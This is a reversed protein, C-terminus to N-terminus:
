AFAHRKKLSLANTYILSLSHSLSHTDSLSVSFTHSYIYTNTHTQSLSLSLTHTHSLALSVKDVNMGLITKVVQRSCVRPLTLFNIKKVNEGEEIRRM